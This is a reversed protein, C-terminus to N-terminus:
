PYLEALSPSFGLSALTLREEADMLRTVPEDGAFVDVKMEDRSVRAYERLSPLRGYAYRKDGRDHRQTSPSLVEVIVVPDSMAYGDGDREGFRVAIDPYYFDDAVRVKVDSKYVRCPGGALHSHLAAALNMAIKEHRLNAGTM